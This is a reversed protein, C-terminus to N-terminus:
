GYKSQKMTAIPEINILTKKVMDDFHYAKARSLMWGGIITICREDMILHLHSVTNQHESQRSHCFSFNFPITTKANFHYDRRSIPVAMVSLCAPYSQGQGQLAIRIM